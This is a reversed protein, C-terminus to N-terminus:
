VYKEKNADVRFNEGEKEIINGNLFNYLPYSKLGSFSYQILTRLYPFKTEELEKIEKLMDKAKQEAQKKTAAMVCLIVNGNYYKIHKLREKSIYESELLSIYYPKYDEYGISVQYMYEHKILSDLECEKIDMYTNDSCVENLYKEAEEKNSFVGKIVVESFLEDILVYAKM